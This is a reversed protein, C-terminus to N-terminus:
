KVPLWVIVKVPSTDPEPVVEIDTVIASSECLWTIEFISPNCLAKFVFICCPEFAVAILLKELVLGPPPTLIKLTVPPV